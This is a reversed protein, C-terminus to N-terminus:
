HIMSLVGVSGSDWSIQMRGNFRAKFSLLGRLRFHTRFNLVAGLALFSSSFFFKWPLPPPREQTVQLQIFSCSQKLIDRRPFCESREDPQLNCAADDSHQANDRQSFRLRCKEDTSVCQVVCAILRQAHQSPNRLHIQCLFLVMQNQCRLDGCLSYYCFLLVFIDCDQMLWFITRRSQQNFNTSISKKESNSKSFHFLVFSKFDIGFVFHIAAFFLARFTRLRASCFSLCMWMISGTAGSPM